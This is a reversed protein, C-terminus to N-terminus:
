QSKSKLQDRFKQLTAIQSSREVHNSLVWDPEPPLEGGTAALQMATVVTGTRGHGYGCHVLVSADPTSRVFEIAEELQGIAPPYFDPVFFHRYKIGASDLMAIEEQTYSRTNFNMLVNIGKEKLFAVATPTLQQTEDHDIYNPASSRFLKCGPFVHQTVQEFRKWESSM